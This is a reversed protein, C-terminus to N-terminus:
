VQPAKPDDEPGQQKAPLKGQQDQVRFLTLININDKIKLWAHVLRLPQYPQWAIILSAAQRSCLCCRAATAHATSTVIGTCM